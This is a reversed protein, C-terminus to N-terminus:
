ARSKFWRRCARSFGTSDAFGLRAAIEARTLVEGDLFRRARSKLEADVLERYQAGEESLRRVLTRLSVGLAQAAAASSLRGSESKALLRETQARLGDAGGHRRSELSTLAVDHLVPDALPSRLGLLRAPVVLANYRAQWRPECGLAARLKEGWSPERWQFDLCIESRAPGVLDGFMACLGLLVGTVVFRRQSEPLVVPSEHRLSAADETRILRVRQRPLADGLHRAAVELAEAVTASTAVAVGLPGRAATNWLEPAELLWGEGFLRDMNDVQRMQQAFTIEIRPNDLEGAAVGTGELIADRLGDDAGFRRAILQFFALPAPGSAVTQMTPGEGSAMSSFKVVVRGINARFSL